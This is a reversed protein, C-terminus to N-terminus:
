IANYMGGLELTVRPYTVTMSQVKWKVGGVVLYKISALTFLDDMNGYIFSFNMGIFFEGNTQFESGNAQRPNRRLWDGIVPIEKTTQSVVGYSEEEEDMTVVGLLASIKGAM